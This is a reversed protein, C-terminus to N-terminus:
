FTHNKEFEEFLGRAARDVILPVKKWLLAPSPRSVSRFSKGRKRNVSNMRQPHVFKQGSKKKEVFTTNKCRVATPHM